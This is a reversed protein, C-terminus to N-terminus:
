NRSKRMLRPPIRGQGHGEGTTCGQRVFSWIENSDGKGLAGVNICLKAYSVRQSTNVGQAGIWPRVM